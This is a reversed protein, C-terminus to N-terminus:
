KEIFAKELDQSINIMFDGMQEYANIIDIYYINSQYNNRNNELDEIM